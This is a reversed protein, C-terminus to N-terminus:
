PQEAVIELTALELPKSPDGIKITQSQTISAVDFQIYSYESERVMTWKLEEPADIIELQEGQAVSCAVTRTSSRDGKRVFVKTPSISVIAKAYSHLLPIKLPEYEPNVPIVEIYDDTQESSNPVLYKVHIVARKTLGKGLEMTDASREIRATVRDTNSVKVSDIEIGSPTIGDFLEIKGEVAEGPYAQRFWIESPEARWMGEIFVSTQEHEMLEDGSNNAGSVYISYSRQGTANITAVELLLSRVESKALTFPLTFPKGQSDTIKMCGCSGSISYIEFHGDSANSLEFAATVTEGERVREKSQSILQINLDSKSHRSQLVYGAVAGFVCCAFIWMLRIRM